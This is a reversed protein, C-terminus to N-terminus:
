AGPGEGYTPNPYSGLSYPQPYDGSGREEFSSGRPPSPMHLREYKGRSGSQSGLDGASSEYKPLLYNDGVRGRPATGEKKLMKREKRSPLDSERGAMLRGPHFVNLIVLAILMLTSDFIYQYVEHRPISSKLGNSYEILRFIIRITILGVVVYQVYLLLLGRARDPSPSQKMLKQHLRVALGLFLFICLQQFGVGGM